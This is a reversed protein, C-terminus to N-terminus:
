ITGPLHCFRLSSNCCQQGDSNEFAHPFHVDLLNFSGVTLKTQLLIFTEKLGMKRRNNPPGWGQTSLCPRMRSSLIRPATRAHQPTHAPCCPEMPHPAPWRRTLSLSPNSTLLFWAPGLGWSANVTSFTSGPGAHSPVPTHRPSDEQFLPWPSGLDSHPREYRQSGTTSTNRATSGSGATM